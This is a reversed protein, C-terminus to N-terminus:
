HPSACPHCATFHHWTKRIFLYLCNYVVRERFLSQSFALFIVISISRFSFLTHLFFCIYLFSICYSYFLFKFNLLFAAPPFLFLFPSASHTELLCLVKTTCQSRYIYIFRWLHNDNLPFLLSTKSSTTRAQSYVSMPERGIAIVSQIFYRDFACERAVCTGRRLFSQTRM